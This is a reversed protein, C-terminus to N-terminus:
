DFECNIALKSLQATGMNSYVGLQLRPQFCNTFLKVLIQLTPLCLILFINTSSFQKIRLNKSSRLNLKLYYM